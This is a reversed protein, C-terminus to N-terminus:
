EAAAAICGAREETFSRGQVKIVRQTGCTDRVLYLNAMAGEGIKKEIILDDGATGPALEGFFKELDNDMTIRRGQFQIHRPGSRGPWTAGGRIQICKMHWPPTLQLNPQTPRPPAEPLM